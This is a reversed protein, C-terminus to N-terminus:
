LDILDDFQETGRMPSCSKWATLVRRLSDAQKGKLDMLFAVEGSKEYLTSIPIFGAEILKVEYDMGVSRFLNKEKISM